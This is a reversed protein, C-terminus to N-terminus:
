IDAPRLELSDSRASVVCTTYVDPKVAAPNQMSVSTLLKSSPLLAILEATFSSVRGMMAHARQWAHHVQLPIGKSKNATCCDAILM